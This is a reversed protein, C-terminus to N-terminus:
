IQQTLLNEFDVHLDFGSRLDEPTLPALRNQVFDGLSSHRVKDHARAFASASEPLTTRGFCVSRDKMKLSVPKRLV